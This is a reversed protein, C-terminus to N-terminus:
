LVGNQCVIDLGDLSDQVCTERDILDYVSGLSPGQKEKCCIIALWGDDSTKKSSSSVQGVNVQGISTCQVKACLSASAVVIKLKNYIKLWCDHLFVQFEDIPAATTIDCRQHQSHSTTTSWCHENKQLALCVRVELVTEILISKVIKMQIILCWYLDHFMKEAKLLGPQFELLFLLLSRRDSSWMEVQSYM